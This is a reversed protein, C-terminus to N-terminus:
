FILNISIAKTKDKQLFCSFTDCMKKSLALYFPAKVEAILAFIYNKKM